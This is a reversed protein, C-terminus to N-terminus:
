FFRRGGKVVSKGEVVSKRDLPLLEGKSRRKYYTFDGDDNNPLILRTTFDALISGKTGEFIAGNGIRNVDIFGRPNDPKLGGQYWVLKIPGRWSNAPHDFTAKLKVPCIDPHYKDSIEHDVEIALPGGADVANWVLDMTHAGMDGMQGVGFDRYM